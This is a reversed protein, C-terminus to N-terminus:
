TAKINCGQQKAQARAADLYGDQLAHLVFEGQLSPDNMINGHELLHPLHQILWSLSAFWIRSVFKNCKRSEIRNCIVTQPEPCALKPYRKTLIFCLGGQRMAHLFLSVRICQTQCLSLLAGFQLLHTTSNTTFLLNEVSFMDIERMFKAEFISLRESMWSADPLANVQAELKWCSVRGHITAAVTEGGLSASAVRRPSIFADEFVSHALDLGLQFLFSSSMKYMGKFICYSTKFIIMVYPQVHQVDDQTGGAHWTSSNRQFVVERPMVCHKPVWSGCCRRVVAPCAPCAAGQRSQSPLTSMPMPLLSLADRRPTLIPRSDSTDLM